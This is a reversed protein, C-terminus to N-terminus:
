PQKHRKRVRSNHYLGRLMRYTRKKTLPLNKQNVTLQNSLVIYSRDRRGSVTMLNTVTATIIFIAVTDVDIVYRNLRSSYKRWEFSVEQKPQINRVIGDLKMGLKNIQEQMDFMKFDTDPFRRPVPYPSLNDSDEFCRSSRIVPLRPTKQLSPLKGDFLDRISQEGIASM